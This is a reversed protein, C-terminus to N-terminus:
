AVSWGFSYFTVYLYIMVIAVYSAGDINNPDNQRIHRYGAIYFMSLALFDSSSDRLLSLSFSVYPLSQGIGGWVLLAKRGYQEMGLSLVLTTMVIKVIGYIGTGLLNAKAGQLGLEQFIIPSYYNM